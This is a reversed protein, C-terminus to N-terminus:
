RLESRSLRRNRCSHAAVCGPTRIQPAGFEQSKLPNIGELCYLNLELRVPVMCM